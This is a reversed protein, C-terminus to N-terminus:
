IYFNEFEPEVQKTILYVTSSKTKTKNRRTCLGIDASTLVLAIIIFLTRM